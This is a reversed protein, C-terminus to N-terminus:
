RRRFLSYNHRRLWDLKGDLETRAPDPYIRYGSLMDARAVDGTLRFAQVWAAKGKRFVESHRLQWPIVATIVAACLLVSM